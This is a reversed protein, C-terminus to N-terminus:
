CHYHQHTHCILGAWSTKPHVIVYNYKSVQKSIVLFSLAAHFLHDNQLVVKVVLLNGDLCHRGVNM